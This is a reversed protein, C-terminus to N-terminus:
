QRLATPVAAVFRDHQWASSSRTKGLRVIVVNHSPVITVFHAEHGATMFCVHHARLPALRPAEQAGARGGAVAEGQGGRLESWANSRPPNPASPRM